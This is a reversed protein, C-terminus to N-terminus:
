IKTYINLKPTLGHDTGKSVYNPNHRPCIKSASPSIFNEGTYAQKYISSLRIIKTKYHMQVRNSDNIVSSPDFNNSQPSQPKNCHHMPLNALLKFYVTESYLTWVQVLGSSEIDVQEGHYRTCAYGVPIQSAPLKGSSGAM